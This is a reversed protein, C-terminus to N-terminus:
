PASCLLPSRPVFVGGNMSTLPLCITVSPVCVRDSMTEPISVSYNPVRLDLLSHHLVNNSAPQQHSRNVDRCGTKGEFVRIHCEPLMSVPFHDSRSGQIVQLKLSQMGLEGRLVKLM